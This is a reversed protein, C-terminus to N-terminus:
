VLFQGPTATCAMETHRIQGGLYATYAMLGSVVLAGTLLLAGFWPKMPRAGHFWVLGVLAVVGVAVSGAMAAGAVDEHKEFFAETIGPVQKVKEQAPEGTLYTVVAVLAVTVFTALAAKKLDESKRGLAFALLLLGFVTGLVPIHNIMLHLHAANM